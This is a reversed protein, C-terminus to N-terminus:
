VLFAAVDIPVSVRVDAASGLGVAVFVAAAFVFM